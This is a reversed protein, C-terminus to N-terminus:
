ALVADVAAQLVHGASGRVVLDALDDLPTPEDNVISLRAGNHM